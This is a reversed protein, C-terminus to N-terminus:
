DPTCTGRETLRQLYAEAEEKSPFPGGAVQASGASLEGSIKILRGTWCDGSQRHRLVFWDGTEAAATPVPLTPLAIALALLARPIFRARM